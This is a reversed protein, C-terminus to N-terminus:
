QPNGRSGNNRFFQLLADWVGNAQNGALRGGMGVANMPSAFDNPQINAGRMSTGLQRGVGASASRLQEPPNNMGFGGGATPPMLFDAQGGGKKYENLGRLYPSADNNPPGAMRGADGSPMSTNSDFPDVTGGGTFPTNQATINAPLQTTPGGMMPSGGSPMGANGSLGNLLGFFGLNTSASGIGGYDKYNNFLQGMAKGASSTLDPGLAQATSGLFVDAATSPDSLNNYFALESPSLQGSQTAREAVGQFDGSNNLAQGGSASNFANLRGTIDAHKQALERSLNRGESYSPAKVQGSLYMGIYNGFSADSTGDEGTDLLHKYYMPIIQQAVQSIMRAVYPNTVNYAIGMQRMKNRIASEPDSVPYLSNSYPLSAPMPGGALQVNQNVPYSNM